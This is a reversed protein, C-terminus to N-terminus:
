ISSFPSIVSRKRNVGSINLIPGGNIILSACISSIERSIRLDSSWIYFHLAKGSVTCIRKVTQVFEEFVKANSAIIESGFLWNQGGGFDSVKGGAQEVIFAGAAVDWPSLGYEYFGDFRGCAVYVLDTAASGLRRLGHSVQM